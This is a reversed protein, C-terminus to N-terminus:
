SLNNLNLNKYKKFFFYKLHVLANLTIDEMRNRLKTKFIECISFTSENKITTPRIALLRKCVNNLLKGRVGNIQFAKLENLLLAKKDAKNNVRDKVISEFEKSYDYREDDSFDNSIM